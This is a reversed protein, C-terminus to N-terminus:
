FHQQFLFKYRLVKGSVLALWALHQVLVGLQTKSDAPMDVLGRRVPRRMVVAGAPCDVTKRDAISFHGVPPNHPRAIAGTWRQDFRFPGVDELRAVRMEVINARYVRRIPVAQGLQHANLAGVEIM